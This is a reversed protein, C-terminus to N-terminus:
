RGADNGGGAQALAEKFPLFRAERLGYQAVFREADDRRAFSMVEGGMPGRLHSAVFLAEGAPIIAGSQGDSVYAAGKKEPHAAQFKALEDIGDFKYVRDAVLEAGFRKDCLIMRCQDCMDTGWRIPEPGKSCACLSIVALTSLLFLTGKM